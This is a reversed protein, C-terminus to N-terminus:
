PVEPLTIDGSGKKVPQEPAPDAGEPKLTPDPDVPIPNTPDPDVPKPDIPTVPYTAIPEDDPPTIPAPDTSPPANNQANYALLAAQQRELPLNTAMNPDGAFLEYSRGDQEVAWPWRSGGYNDGEGYGFACLLMKTFQYGTLTETPRYTGDEFGNLVDHKVCWLIYPASWRNVKVDRFPQTDCILAQADEKGLILYAIITAGQERTLTEKPRFSGDEFGHLIERETMEKVADAYVEGIESDDTFAFAPIAFLLVCLVILLTRSLMTKKM